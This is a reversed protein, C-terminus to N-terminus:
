VVSKRDRALKSGVNLLINLVSYCPAYKYDHTTLCPYTSGTPETALLRLKSQLNWAVSQYGSSHCRQGGYVQACIYTFVCVCVCVSVCACM